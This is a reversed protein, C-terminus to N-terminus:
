ALDNFKKYLQMACEGQAKYNNSIVWRIQSIRHSYVISLLQEYDLNSFVQPLTPNNIHAILYDLVLKVIDACYDKHYYYVKTGYQEYDHKYIKDKVDCARKIATGSCFLKSKIYRKGKAWSSGFGSQQSGIFEVGSKLLSNQLKIPGAPAFIYMSMAIGGRLIIEIVNYHM